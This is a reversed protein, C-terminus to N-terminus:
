QRAVTNNMQHISEQYKERSFEIFRGQKRFQSLEVMDPMGEYERIHEYYGKTRLFATYKEAPKNPTDVQFKLEVAMGPQTQALYHKDDSALQKSVDKNQHTIASFPTHRSLTAPIQKSFDIAAYDLEWFMFGASLKIRVEPKSNDKSFDIPVVLDRAALPGVSPIAEIPQWGQDTEVSVLLPIGQNHQWTNLEDYSKAKQREAWTTYFSGFKKTFEGFLYDLWLSNQARLILKGQQVSAPKAFTLVMSNLSDTATAENFLYASQDKKLLQPLYNRGDTAMASVPPQLNSFVQPNGQQDLLVQSGQPHAVVWLQALNTYQREKLENTIKVRYENGVPQIGPLPMFDQRELPSFIAGGYTEGVFQYNEGNYVYVFPCSSKLLAVLITVIVLVGTIMALGGLIHSAVTRGTEKEVVDIRKISTIPIMVQSGEGKSYENIYIHVINLAIRKDSSNYRYAKGSEPNTYGIFDPAVEGIVGELFEGNIVPNSFSYTKNGQHLIFYKGAALSIQQGSAPSNETRTRYYNCGSVQFSFCLLLIKAIIATTSDKRFLHLPKFTNFTLYTWRNKM